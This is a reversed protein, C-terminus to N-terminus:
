LVLEFTNVIIFLFQSISLKIYLALQKRLMNICIVMKLQHINESNKKINLHFESKGDIGDFVRM